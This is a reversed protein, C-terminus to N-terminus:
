KVITGMKEWPVVIYILQYLTYQFGLYKSYDKEKYTRLILM